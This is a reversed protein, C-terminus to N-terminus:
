IASGAGQPKPSKAGTVVPAEKGWWKMRLKYKEAEHTPLGPEGSQGIKRLEDMFARYVVGNM